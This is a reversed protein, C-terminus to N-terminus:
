IRLDCLMRRSMSNSPVFLNDPRINIVPLLRPVVASDGTLHVVAVVARCIYAFGALCLFLLLPVAVDGDHTWRENYDALEYLPLVVILALLFIILARM